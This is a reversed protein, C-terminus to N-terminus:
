FIIKRHLARLRDVPVAKGTIGTVCPLKLGEFAWADIIGFVVYIVRAEQVRKWNPVYLQRNGSDGVIPHIVYRSDGKGSIARVVCDLIQHESGFVPFVAWGDIYGFFGDEIFEHIKRRKFYGQFQPYRLLNEHAHQAIGTLDNWKREWGRWRPLVRSSQSRTVPINVTGLKKALYELSGHKGCAACRFTGDEYVFMSPHEDGHFICCAAFYGSYEVGDLKELLTEYLSM